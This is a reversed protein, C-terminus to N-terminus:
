GGRQRLHVATNYIWGVGWGMAFGFLFGYVFGILGGGWTVNYGPFFQGLLALHPGVIEGGKLLLVATALFIITGFTIGFVLGLLVSRVRRVARMLVEDEQTPMIAPPLQELARSSSM